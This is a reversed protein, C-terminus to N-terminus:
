NSAGPIRCRNRLNLSLQQPPYRQPCNPLGISLRQEQRPLQKLRKKSKEMPSKMSGIPIEETMSSDTPKEAAEPEVLDAPEGTQEYVWEPPNEARDDPATLLTDEEAGQRAALSELWAFAADEDM